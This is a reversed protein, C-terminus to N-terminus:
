FWKLNILEITQTYVLARTLAQYFLKRWQTVLDGWRPSLWWWWQHCWRSPGPKHWLWLDVSAVGDGGQTDRMPGGAVPRVCQLDAGAFHNTYGWVAKTFYSICKQAIIHTERWLIPQHSTNWLPNPNKAWPHECTWALPKSSRTAYTMPSTRATNGNMNSRDEKRQTNM